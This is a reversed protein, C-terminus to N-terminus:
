LEFNLELGAVMEPEKKPAVVPVPSAQNRSKWEQYSAAQISQMLDQAQAGVINGRIQREGLQDKAALAGTLFMIPPEGQPTDRRRMVHINALVGIERQPGLADFNSSDEISYMRLHTDGKKMLLVIPHDRCEFAHVGNDHVNLKFWTEPMDPADTFRLKVYTDISPARQTQGFHQGRRAKLEASQYAVFSSTPSKLLAM